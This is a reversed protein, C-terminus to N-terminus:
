KRRRELRNRDAMLHEMATPGPPSAASVAAAEDLWRRLEATKDPETAEQEMTDTGGKTSGKLWEQVLGVVVERVTMGRAASRAKLKRYLEDPIEMTTKM